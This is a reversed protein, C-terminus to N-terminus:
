QMPEHYSNFYKIVENFMENSRNYQHVIRFLENNSNRVIKNRVIQINRFRGKDIPDLLITHLHIALPNDERLTHAKIEQTGYILKLIIAQDVGYIKKSTESLSNYEKLVSNTFDKLTQPTGCLVGGNLVEYMGISDLYKQGYIGSIMNSNWKQDIIPIGESTIIIKDMPLNDIVDFPNGQFYIDNFDVCLIKEYTNENAFENYAVLRDLFLNDFKMDDRKIVRLGFAELERIIFSNDNKSADIIVIDYNYPAFYNVSKIFPYITSSSIDKIYSIILNKNKVKSPARKLPKINHKYINEGIKILSHSTGHHNTDFVSDYNRDAKTKLVNLSNSYNLGVFNREHNQYKEDFIVDYGIIKKVDIVRIGYSHAKMYLDNDEAGWGWFSNRYGGIKYFDSHNMLCSGYDGLNFFMENAQPYKWEGSIPYVDVHHIYIYKYTGKKRFNIVSNCCLGANWDGENDLEAILIDYTINRDNFYKPTLELFTKLHEERDRYPVVILLDKMEPKNIVGTEFSLNNLIEFEKLTRVKGLPYDTKFNESFYKKEAYNNSKVERQHTGNVENYHRLKGTTNYKHWILCEPLGFFDWGNTFGRLTQDTEEYKWFLNGDYPVEKVYEISAFLFGAATTTGVIPLDDGNELNCLEKNMGVGLSSLAKTNFGRIENKIIDNRVKGKEIEYASPYFTLVPKKSNCKSLYFIFKEDWDKGFRMHSDIQLYYKENEIFSQIKHRVWSVGKTKRFDFSYIEVNKDEFFVSYDQSEIFDTQNFVVVRINKPDKANEYLDNITNMLESDRYSAISVFIECNNM